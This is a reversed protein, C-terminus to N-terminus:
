PLVLELSHQLSSFRHRTPSYVVRVLGSTLSRWSCSGFCSLILQNRKSNIASFLLKSVSRRRSLDNRMKQLKTRSSLLELLLTQTV